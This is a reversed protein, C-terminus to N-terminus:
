KVKTPRPTTNPSGDRLRMLNEYVQHLNISEKDALETLVRVNSRETGSGKAAWLLDAIKVATANSAQGQIMFYDHEVVKDINGSTMADYLSRYKESKLGARKWVKGANLYEIDAKEDAPIEVAVATEEVTKVEAVAPTTEVATTDADTVTQEAVPAGVVDEGRVEDSAPRSMLYWIVGAALIISACFAAVVIWRRSRNSRQEEVTEETEVEPEQVPEDTKKDFVPAVLPKKVEAERAAVDGAPMGGRLDVNYTEPSTGVLRHARFSHFRGARLQNYEPTNKEIHLSFELVRAVGFDLRLLVERSEKELVIELPAAALLESCSYEKVYNYYNTSSVTLTVSGDAFDLNSIEFGGETRPATRGNILVTYTDVEEGGAAKVMYPIRKRFVIGAHRANNVILAPGAIRVYRNTTGVEFTESVPDFGNLTYTVTLKDTLEVRYASAEVGEPCVVMLSKDLPETLQKLRSDPQASVTAPVVIVGKFPMYDRQRSFAFINALESGSMYTRYCVGKGDLYSELAGQSRLPAEPFGASELLEDLMSETLEENGNIRNKIAALLNVAPRGAALVDFDMRLTVTLRHDAGAEDLMFYSFARRSGTNWMLYGDTLNVFHASLETAAPLKISPASNYSLEHCQSEADRYWVAIDLYPYKVSM